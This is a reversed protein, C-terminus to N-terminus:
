VLHNACAVVFGGVFGHKSWTRRGKNNLIYHPQEVGQIILCVEFGRRERGRSLSLMQGDLFGM